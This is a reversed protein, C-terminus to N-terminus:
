KTGFVVHLKNDYLVKALPEANRDAASAAAAPLPEAEHFM